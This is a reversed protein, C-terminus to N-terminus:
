SAKGRTVEDLRLIIFCSGCVLTHGYEVLSLGAKQCWWCALPIGERLTRTRREDM